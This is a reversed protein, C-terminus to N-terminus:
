PRAHLNLPMHCLVRVFALAAPLDYLPAFAGGYLCCSPLDFRLAFFPVVTRVFLLCLPLLVFLYFTSFGFSSM